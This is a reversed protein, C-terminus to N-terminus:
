RWKQMQRLIHENRARRKTDPDPLARVSRLLAVYEEPFQHYTAGLIVMRKYWDYPQLAPGLYTFRAVYMYAPHLRGNVNVPYLQPYYGSGEAKDLEALDRSHFEYLVGWM